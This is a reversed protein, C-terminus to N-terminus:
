WCKIYNNLIEINVPEYFVYKEDLIYAPISTINYNTLLIDISTLNLDTPLTIYVTKIGCRQKFDFLLVDLIKQKETKNYYSYFYIVTSLKDACLNKLKLTNKLLQLDLLAYNQKELLIENTLKNATDYLEIKKGFFYIKDALIRNQEILYDCKESTSANIYEEFFKADNWLINIYLNENKIENLRIVESLYGILFFTFIIIFFIILTKGILNKLKM